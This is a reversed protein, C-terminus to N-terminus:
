AAKLGLSLGQKFTQEPHCTDGLPANPVVDLSSGWLNISPRTTEYQLSFSRAGNAHLVPDVTVGWYQNISEATLTTETPGQALICGQSMLAVKSTLFSAVNLDHLSVVLTTGDAALDKLLLTTDRIGVLDLHNTPEDILLMNSGQALGRAIRARQRQGGSLEALPTEKFSLIGCKDLTENVFKLDNSTFSQLIGRFPVRGLRVYEFVTLPPMTGSEQPVVAVNSAWQRRRHQPYPKGQWYVEGTDPRLYGSLLQLLTSKGSGNPGLFGLIEGPEINLPPSSLTFRHSRTLTLSTTHFSM